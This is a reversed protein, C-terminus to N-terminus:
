GDTIDVNSDRLRPKLWGITSRGDDTTPQLSPTSQPGSLGWGSSERSESREKSGGTVATSADDPNTLRTAGKM